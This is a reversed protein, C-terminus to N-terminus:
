RYRDVAEILAKANEWPADNEIEVYFVGGGGLARYHDAYGRIAADIEAPTGHPVLHQRDPHILVSVRAREFKDRLGTEGEFLAAQPWIADAGLAIVEDWIPGLIGCSHFLVRAGAAHILDFLGKYRASFHRRFMAPSVIPGTQGGWDDGFFIVDAGQELMDAIVDHWYNTLRDLFRLLDPDDDALDVLVQEMSRLECPREFLLVWGDFVLRDRRAAAYRRQTEAFTAPNDRPRPPFRYAEARWDRLPFGVPSGQLGVVTNEWTTGWEDTVRERYNGAADVTGPPPMPLSDFTVPNDPPLRNLLDLLRKGHKHLGAPMRHYFVPIRDPQRFDFADLMRQRSTSV